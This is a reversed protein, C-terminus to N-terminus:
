DSAEGIEQGHHSSDRAWHNYNNEEQDSDITFFLLHEPKTILNTEVDNAREQGESYEAWDVAALHWHRVSINM